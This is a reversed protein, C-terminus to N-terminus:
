QAGPLLHHQHIEVVTRSGSCNGDVHDVLITSENGREPALSNRARGWRPSQVSYENTPGSAGMPRQTSGTRKLLAGKTLPGVTKSFEVAHAGVISYRDHHADLNSRDDPADVRTGTRCCLTLYSYGDHACPRQTYARAGGELKPSSPPGHGSKTFNKV